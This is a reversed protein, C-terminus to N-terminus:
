CTWTRSNSVPSTPAVERVGLLNCIICIGWFHDGAGYVIKFSFKVNVVKKLNRFKLVNLRNFVLSSISVAATGMRMLGVEAM